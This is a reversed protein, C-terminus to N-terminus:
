YPTVSITSNTANTDRSSWIVLLRVGSEVITTSGSLNGNSIQQLAYREGVSSVNISPVNPCSEYGPNWCDITIAAGDDVYKTHNYGNAGGNTTTRTVKKPDEALSFFSVGCVTLLILKKM